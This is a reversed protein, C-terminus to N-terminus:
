NESLDIVEADKPIVFKFVNPPLKKDRVIKSLKMVVSRRIGDEFETVAGFQVPFWENEKVWIEIFEKIVGNGPVQQNPKKLLHPKPTLRIQYVGKSNAAEDPVLKMIWNESADELFEGMGPLIERKRKKDWKQKNVQNLLPVYSWAFSGDVVITRTIDNPNKRSVFEMRLLNPHAFTFRGRAVSKRNKFLTTEEFDASFNKSKKYATKINKYVEDVTYTHGHIAFGMSLYILIFGWYLYKM